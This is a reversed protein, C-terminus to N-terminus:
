CFWFYQHDANKALFDQIAEKFGRSGIAIIVQSPPDDILQHFHSIPMDYIHHGVKKMNNSLWQFEIKQDILLKAILKGKGGAGWIVLPKQRNRDLEFFYKLKLQIFRNDAYNEDNRSTRTSYDRWMHIVQPVPFVKLGAKAFRFALDYDEPYLNGTFGGAKEFDRRSTMWCPSPIPCEKYLECFNSSNSTLQNLWAAYKRYGDGLNGDDRFYQVLGVALHGPGGSQLVQVMRELKDPTMLDDADMRTIFRGKSCTYASRLAEIIGSGPNQIFKIRENVLSYKKLIEESKDTSHDNVAILEWNTFEQNVISDLCDTLYPVANKVPMLVSVLHEGSSNEKM